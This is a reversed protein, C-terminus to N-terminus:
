ALGHRAAAAAPDAGEKVVERLAAMFKV